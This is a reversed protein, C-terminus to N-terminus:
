HPLDQIEASCCAQGPGPGPPRGRAPPRAGPGHWARSGAWVQVQLGALAVAHGGGSLLARRPVSCPGMAPDRWQPPGTRHAGRRGLDRLGLECDCPILPHSVEQLHCLTKVLSPIILRTSPNGPAPLGLGLLGGERRGHGFFPSPKSAQRPQACRRRSKTRASRRMMAIRRSHVVTMDARLEAYPVRLYGM